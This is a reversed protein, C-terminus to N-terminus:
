CRMNFNLFLIAIKCPILPSPLPTPQHFVGSESMMSNDFFSIKFNVTALFSDFSLIGFCKKLCQFIIYFPVTRVIIVLYM